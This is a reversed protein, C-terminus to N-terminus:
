MGSDPDHPPPPDPVSPVDLDVIEPEAYGVDIIEPRPPLEGPDLVKEVVAAEGVTVLVDTENFTQNNYYITVTYIGPPLDVIKFYGNEDTIVVGEGQLSPSTAVVTAGVGENGDLEVLRGHITQGGAQPLEAMGEVIPVRVIEHTLSSPMCPTTVVACTPAARVEGLVVDRGQVVAATAEPATSGLRGWVYGAIAAVVALVITRM